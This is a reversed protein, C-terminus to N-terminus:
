FGGNLGGGVRRDLHTHGIRLSGDGDEFAQRTCAPLIKERIDHVLPGVPVKVGCLVPDDVLIIGALNLLDQGVNELFPDVFIRGGDGIVEGAFCASFGGVQKCVVVGGHSAVPGASLCCASARNAGGEGASGEAKSVSHNGSPNLISGPFRCLSDGCIAHDSHDEGLIEVRTIGFEAGAAVVM